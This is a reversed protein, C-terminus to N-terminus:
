QVVICGQKMVNPAAMYGYAAPSQSAKLVMHVHAAGKENIRFLLTPVALVATGVERKGWSRLNM